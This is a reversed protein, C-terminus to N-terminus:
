VACYYFQPLDFGACIEDNNENSIMKLRLLFSCNQFRLCRSLCYVVTKYVINPSLIAVNSLSNGILFKPALTM